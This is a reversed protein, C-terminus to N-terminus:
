WTLTIANKRAIFSLFGMKRSPKAQISTKKLCIFIMSLIAREKPSDTATTVRLRRKKFLTASILIVPKLERKTIKATV